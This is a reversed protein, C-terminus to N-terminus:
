GEFRVITEIASPNPVFRFRFCPVTNAVQELYSLTSSLPERGHFPPFCRAFLEAVAQSKKLPVIENANAHELIFIRSISAKGPLAFGAEGHWPTGHMWLKNEDVRLIIRDDSLVEVNRASKWLLTTTSKGAGSHGLFLHGGTESDVLGCGHVEVGRGRALWNTVLLEDAPYELAYVREIGALSERNLVLRANSFDKTVLLRKYPQVGLVPSVFDIAFGSDTAFITWLSGSDFLKKGQWLQLQDAWEITIEIDCNVPDTDSRDLFLAPEPSLLLDDTNSATLGISIDAVRIRSRYVQAPSSPEIQLAEIANM